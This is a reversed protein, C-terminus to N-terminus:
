GLQSERTDLITRVRQKVDDSDRNAPILVIVDLNAKRRIATGTSLQLRNVANTVLIRHGSDGLPAISTVSSPRRGDKGESIDLLNIIDAPAMESVSARATAADYLEMWQETPMQEPTVLILDNDVTTIRVSDGNEWGASEILRKSLYVGYSTSANGGVTHLKVM